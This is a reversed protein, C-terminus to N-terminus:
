VSWALQHSKSLTQYVRAILDDREEDEKACFGMFLFRKVGLTILPTLLTVGYPSSSDAFAVRERKLLDVIDSITGVSQDIPIDHRMEISINNEVLATRWAPFKYFLGMYPMTGDVRLNVESVGLGLGGQQDKEYRFFDVGFAVGSPVYFEKSHFYKALAFCIEAEDGRVLENSDNRNIRFGLFSKTNGQIQERAGVIAIDQSNVVAGYSYSTRLPLFPTIEIAYTHNKETLWGLFGSMDRLPTIQRGARVLDYNANLIFNGSGGVGRTFQIFLMGAYSNPISRRFDIVRNIEAEVKLQATRYDLLRTPIVLRPYNNVGKDPVLQTLLNRFQTKDNFRDSISEVASGPPSNLLIKTEAAMHILSVSHQYPNLQYLAGSTSENSKVEHLTQRFDWPDTVFITQDIANPKVLDFDGYLHFLEVTQQKISWPLILRGDRSAFNRLLIMECMLRIENDCSVKGLVAASLSEDGSAFLNQLLFSDQNGCIARRFNEFAVRKDFSDVSILDPLYRRGTIEFM